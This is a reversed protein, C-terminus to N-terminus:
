QGGPHWGVGLRQKLEEDEAGPRTMPGRTRSGGITCVPCPLGRNWAANGGPGLLLGTLEGRGSDQERGSSPPACSWLGGMSTTPPEFVTPEFGPLLLSAPSLASAVQTTHWMQLSLM